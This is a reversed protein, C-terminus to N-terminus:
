TQMRPLDENTKAGLSLQIILYGTYPLAETKRFIAGLIGRCTM